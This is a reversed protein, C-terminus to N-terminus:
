RRCLEELERAADKLDPRNSISWNHAFEALIDLAKVASKQASTSDGLARRIEALSLLSLCESERQGASVFFANATEAMPLAQQPSHEAFYVDALALQANAVAENGSQSGSIVKQLQAEAGKLRGVRSEAVAATIQLESVWSPTQNEPTRLASRALEFARRYQKRSLRMEADIGVIEPALDPRRRVDAPIGSIMQEAESYRGMRWLAEACHLTNYENPNAKLASQFHVLAESYNQLEFFADGTVEEALGVLAPNGAKETLDLSQQGRQLAERFQSQELKARAILILADTSEVFFGTPHYYDFAKQAFSIVDDPKGGQQDRLTALNLEALAVLRPRESKQSLQLAQQFYSEAHEYDGTALYASGLRVIGDTAWYELGNDRALTIADNALDVPTKGGFHRRADLDRLYETASLQALARVELQVSPIARATALSDKLFQEAQDLRKERNAAYGRQYQVEAIGELNSAASYLKEARAFESEPDESAKERDRSELIGLRLYSAPDDPALGKAQSYSWTAKSIQGTKEYARGLDVYGYPKKDKPLMKFIATYRNLAEPFDRLITARVAEVYQKDSEPLDRELELSSAKLMEDKARGTFDLENWADALRAHALLFDPDRVLAMQLANTANLYTGERLAAVGRNYWYLANPSPPQYSRSRYLILIGAAICALLAAAVALARHGSVRYIPRRCLAEAVERPAQYRDEPEYSVCREIVRDWRHPVGPQLMSARVPHKTRQETAGLPTAAEFPLKGTVMEYLLVGLAYIDSAPTVTAGRFQEPAMYEPTGLVTGYSTLKTGSTAPAPATEHALGFDMVVACARGNRQALMINRSKLDRHIVGADHIAQLGSCVQVAIQESDQITLPGGQDLRDALTVGDLFEMTLFAVPRGPDTEPAIFLEHIRCVNPGTVKRALAVEHRFRALIDPRDAIEPRITKLAIRGLHFDNAEYVEGMGGCGLFRVIEFRGAIITGDAFSQAADPLVSDFIPLTDDPAGTEKAQALLLKELERGLFPDCTKLEAILVAREAATKKLAEHFALRLRQRQETTM